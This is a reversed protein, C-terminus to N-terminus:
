EPSGDGCDTEETEKDRRGSDNLSELKIVTASLIRSLDDIEKVLIALSVAVFLLAINMLLM